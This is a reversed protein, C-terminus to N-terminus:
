RASRLRAIIKSKPDSAAGPMVHALARAEIAALEQQTEANDQGIRELRCDPGAIVGHRMRVVKEEMASLYTMPRNVLAGWASGKATTKTETEVVTTTTLHTGTTVNVNRKDM